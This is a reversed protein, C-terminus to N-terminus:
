WDMWARVMAAVEAEDLEDTDVILHAMAALARAERETSHAMAADFSVSRKVRDSAQGKAYRERRILEDARLYVLRSDTVQELIPEVQRRTRGADVVWRGGNATTELLYNLLWRGGTRRDLAAGEVQLRSRDWGAGGLISQLADRVRVVTCNANALRTALSTKGAAIEGGIVVVESSRAQVM